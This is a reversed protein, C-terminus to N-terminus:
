GIGLKMWIPWSIRFENVGIFAVHCVFTVNERRHEQPVLDERIHRGTKPYTTVPTKFSRQTKLHRFELLGHLSVNSSSPGVNGELRRNSGARRCTTVNWGVHIGFYSHWQASKWSVWAQEFERRSSWYRIEHFYSKTTWVLDCVSPRLRCMLARKKNWKTFVPIRQKVVNRDVVAWM